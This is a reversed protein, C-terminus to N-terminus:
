KRAFLGMKSINFRSLLGDILNKDSVIEKPIRAILSKEQIKILSRNKMNQLYIEIADHLPRRGEVCNQSEPKALSFSFTAGNISDMKSISTRWRAIPGSSTFSEAMRRTETDVISM